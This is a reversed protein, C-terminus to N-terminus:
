YQIERKAHINAYTRQVNLKGKMEVLRKNLKQSM